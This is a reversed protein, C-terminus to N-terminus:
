LRYHLRIVDIVRRGQGVFGRHKVGFLCIKYQMVLLIVSLMANGHRRAKQIKTLVSEQNKPNERELNLPINLIRVKYSYLYVSIFIFFTPLINM